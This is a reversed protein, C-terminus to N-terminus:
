KKLLAGKINDDFYKEMDKRMISNKGDQWSLTLRHHIKRLTGHDTSSINIQNAEHYISQYYPLLHTKRDQQRPCEVRALMYSLYRIREKAPRDDEKLFYKGQEVINKMYSRPSDMYGPQYALFRRKVETYRGNHIRSPKLPLIFEGSIDSKLSRIAICELTRQQNNADYGTWWIIINANNIPLNTNEDIVTGKDSAYTASLTFGALAIGSLLLYFKKLIIQLHM